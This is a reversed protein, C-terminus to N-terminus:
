DIEFGLLLVKKVVKVTDEFSYGHYTNSNIALQELM